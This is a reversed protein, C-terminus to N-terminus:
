KQKQKQKQQKKREKKRQKKTKATLPHNPEPLEIKREHRNGKRAYCYWVRAMCVKRQKRFM